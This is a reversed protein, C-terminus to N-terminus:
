LSKGDWVDYCYSLGGTYIDVLSAIHIAEPATAGGLLAGMAIDTGSGIAVCHEKRAEALAKWYGKREEIDATASLTDKAITKRVCPISDFLDFIEIELTQAGNCKVSISLFKGRPLATSDELDSLMKPFEPNKGLVTDKYWKTFRLVNTRLGTGGTYHFLEGEGKPYHSFIQLKNMSGLLVTDGSTFQGDSALIRGDFAITTM